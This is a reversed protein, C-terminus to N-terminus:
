GMLTGTTGAGIFLYDPNPVERAIAAATWEYHAGPNAQNAYQNTWLLAPQNTMWGVAIWCWAGFTFVVFGYGTVRSGLNSATM